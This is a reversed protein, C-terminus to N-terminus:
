MQHLRSQMADHGSEDIKYKRQDESKNSHRMKHSLNLHLLGM